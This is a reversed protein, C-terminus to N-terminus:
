RLTSILQARSRVGFRLLITSVYNKVTGESLKVIEAIQRNNKGELVLHLIAVHRPALLQLARESLNLGAQRGPNPTQPLGDIADSGIVGCARIFSAVEQLNASKPLFAHAGLALASRALDEHGRSPANAGSIVVIRADPFRERFVNLGDFGQTDPLGIDLLVLDIADEHSQYLALGEALSGAELVEIAARVHSVQSQLLARMGFRVLEHDDVVLIASSPLTSTLKM